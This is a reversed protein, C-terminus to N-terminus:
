TLPPESDAMTKRMMALIKRDEADASQGLVIDISEMIDVDHATSHEFVQRGLTLMRERTPTRPAYKGSAHELVVECLSHRGSTLCHTCQLEYDGPWHADRTRAVLHLVLYREVHEMSKGCQQCTFKDRICVQALMDEM